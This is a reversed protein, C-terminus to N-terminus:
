RLLNPLFMSVQPVYTVLLLVFIMAALLPLVAKSIRGISEKAINTVAFLCIGVPPTVLGIALNVILMIGFHTPDMGVSLAIPLMVPTLIILAATLDLFLGTILLVVNIILLIIIPNTSVGQIWESIMLPLQEYAVIWGFLSATAVLLMVAATGTVTENLITKFHSFKIEKYVFGGVILSYVVAIVAAETPTVIGGIIGGLVLIPMFLALSASKFSDWIVKPTPFKEKPFQEPNKTAMIYTVVMLSVGVLIGPIAGALFLKSISEGAMVGYIIIPISPPIIIGITSSAATVAAAFSGDYGRKKMAPILASGIAVSDAVSSGSIGGFFKSAVINVMALGGRVFGVLCSAFDILRRAIGGTNMLSGALIFFPIALLPFSNVGNGFRQAILSLPIDGMFYVAAISALGISIAVPVGIVLLIFFVGLLVGIIM